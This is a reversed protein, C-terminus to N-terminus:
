LQKQLCTDFQDLSCADPNRNMFHMTPRQWKSAKLKKLIRGRAACTGDLVGKVDSDTGTSKM